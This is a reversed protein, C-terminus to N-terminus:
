SLNDLGDKFDSILNGFEKQKDKPLSKIKKLNVKVFSSFDASIEQMRDISDSM